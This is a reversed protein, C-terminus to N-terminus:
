RSPADGVKPAIAFIAGFYNSPPIDGPTVFMRSIDGDLFLADPCGQSRFFEAFEHLNAYRPQGFETIAFVVTGDPRVGVGNRHLYNRSDARFAPHVKGNRLLLPGSQTALRAHPKLRAYEESTVVHAGRADIYFVGNPKLFFNGAGPSLNLPHLVKGDIVCLGSPVGGDEFIGANMIFAVRRGDARLHEQLKSFQGFREGSSDKWFLDIEAPKAEYTLFVTGGREARQQAPLLLTTALLLLAFAFTRM